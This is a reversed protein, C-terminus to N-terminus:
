VGRKLLKVTGFGALLQLGDARMLLREAGGNIRAEIEVMDGRLADFKMWDVGSVLRCYRLLALAWDYRRESIGVEAGAAKSIRLGGVRLVALALADDSARRIIRERDGMAILGKEKARRRLNNNEGRLQALANVLCRVNDM